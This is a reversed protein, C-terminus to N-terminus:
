QTDDDEPGVSLGFLHLATEFAYKSFEADRLRFKDFSVQSSIFRIDVASMPDRLLQSYSPPPLGVDFNPEVGLDPRECAWRVGEYERARIWRADEVEMEFVGSGRISEGGDEDVVWIEPSWMRRLGASLSRFTYLRDSHDHLVLNEGTKTVLLDDNTAAWQPETTDASYAANPPQNQAKASSIPQKESSTTSATSNGDADSTRPLKVKHLEHEDELRSSSKGKRRFKEKLKKVPKLIPLASTLSIDSRAPREDEESTADDDSPEDELELHADGGSERASEDSSSSHYVASEEDVDLEKREAEEGEVVPDMSPALKPGFVIDIRASDARAITGFLMTRMVAARIVRIFYPVRKSSFVRIRLHDFTVRIRSEANCTTSAKSGSFTFPLFPLIPCDVSLRPLTFSALPSTVSLDVVEVDVKSRGFVIRCEGVLLTVNRPAPATARPSVVMSPMVLRITSISLTRANFSIRPCAFSAAHGRIPRRIIASLLLLISIGLYASILGRVTSADTSPM